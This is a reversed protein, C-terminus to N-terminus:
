NEEPFYDYLYGLDFTLFLTFNLIGIKGKIMAKLISLFM